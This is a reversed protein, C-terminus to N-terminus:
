MEVTQIQLRYEMKVHEIDAEIFHKGVTQYGLKKYFPVVAIQAHCWVKKLNNQLAVEHVSQMLLKGIGQKRHPVLVALRGIKGQQEVDIRCTGVAQNADYALLHICFPDRNDMELHEPVNQEHVFVEFRIKNIDEAEAIYDAVRVNM